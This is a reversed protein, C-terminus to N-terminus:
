ETGLMAENPDPLCESVDRGYADQLVANGFVHQLSESIASLASCLLSIISCAFPTRASGSWSLM